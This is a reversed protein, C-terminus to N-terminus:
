PISFERGLGGVYFIGDFESARGVFKELKETKEYLDKKNNLFDV